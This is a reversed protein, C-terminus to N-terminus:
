ILSWSVFYYDLRMNKRHLSLQIERARYQKVRTCQDPPHIRKIEGSNCATTNDEEAFFALHIERPKKVAM